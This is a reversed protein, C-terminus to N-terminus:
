KLRRLEKVVARLQFYVVVPFLVWFVTLVLGLVIVAVGAIAGGFVQVLEGAQETTFQRAMHFGFAAIGSGALVALLGVSVRLCIRLMRRQKAKRAESALRLPGGDSWLEAHCGPCVVVGAGAQTDFLKGCVPCVVERVADTRHEINM